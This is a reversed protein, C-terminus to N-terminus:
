GALRRLGGRLGPTDRREAARRLRETTEHFPAPMSIHFGQVIGCGLADVAALQEVTEVGEVVLGMGLKAAIDVLASIIVGCTPERPLRRTFSKDIKIIDVPFNLLHTLSAYGTGFDDLAVLLGHERLRSVTKAASCDRTGVLVKETMELLLHQLPVGHGDFAAAIREVLDGAQFDAATVNIGVLPFPLDLDLWRRLDAAVHDLMRDTLERAVHPEEFAEQFYGAAVISGNPSLMRALAEIGVISRDAIRVVPQYYPVIRGEALATEVESLCRHRRTMAARLHPRYEVFRGRGSGKSDYLALDANQRLTDLDHGDRGYLAGGITVHPIITQGVFAFPRAVGALIREATERLRKAPRCDDLIAIFEDGGIRCATGSGVNERIRCAVQRILEDGVAHGLADNTIKLNDIDIILLGLGEPNQEFSRKLLMDAHFRNPLGTLPDYYALRQNRERIEAQELAIACVHVCTQVARREIETPGREENYYLAFTGIVRGGRAKIPSSWCAKIGLPVILSRYGEWRRDTAIRKVLVPRGLYAASGCSGVEPGIAVGAILRTFAAPLGPGAVPRLRGAEDIAVLSCIADPALAEIRRCLVKGVTDLPGGCAIMELIESQLAQLAQTDAHDPHGAAGPM